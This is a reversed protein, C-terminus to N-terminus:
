NASQGNTQSFKLPRAKTSCNVYDVVAAEAVHTTDFRFNVKPRGELTTFCWPRPSGYDLEVKVKRDFFSLRVSQLDAYPLKETPHAVVLRGSDLWRIAVSKLQGPDADVQVQIQRGKEDKAFQRVRDTWIPRAHDSQIVVFKDFESSEQTLLALLDPRESYNSKLAAEDQALDKCRWDAPAEERLGECHDRRGRWDLIEAQIRQVELSHAQVAFLAWLIM